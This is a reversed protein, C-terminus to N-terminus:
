KDPGVPTCLTYSRRPLPDGLYYDHRVSEVRFRVGNIWVPMGPAPLQSSEAEFQVFHEVRLEIYDEGTVADVQAMPPTPKTRVEPSGHALKLAAAWSALGAILGRALTRRDM